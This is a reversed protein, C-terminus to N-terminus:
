LKTFGIKQKHMSDVILAVMVSNDKDECGAHLLFRHKLLDDATARVNRDVQLCQDLFNRLEPDLKDTPMPPKGNARILSFVKRITENAYPPNGTLM